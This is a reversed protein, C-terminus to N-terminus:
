AIEGSTHNPIFDLMLKVGLESARAILNDFDTMNGYDPEITYFDSVDYGIDIQPSAFIPSLWCANIGADKLHDM